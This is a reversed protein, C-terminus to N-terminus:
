QGTSSPIKYNIGFHVGLKRDPDTLYKAHNAYTISLPLTMTDSLKQSWTLSAIFRDKKTPDNSINEYNVAADIRTDKLRTDPLPRGWSLSYVLSHVSNRAIPTTVGYTSLDVTEARSQGYEIAFSLRDSAPATGHTATFGTLRDSCADPSPVTAGAAGCVDANNRRFRTLSNPSIELTGKFSL